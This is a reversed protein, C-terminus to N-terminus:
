EQATITVTDIGEEQSTVWIFLYQGSIILPEEGTYDYRYMDGGTEITQGNVNFPQTSTIIISARGHETQLMFTGQRHFEVVSASHLVFTFSSLPTEATMVPMKPTPSPIIMLTFLAGIILFQVVLVGTQFKSPKM